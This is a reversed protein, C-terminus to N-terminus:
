YKNYLKNNNNFKVSPKGTSFESIDLKNERILDEIKQRLDPSIHLKPLNDVRKQKAEMKKEHEAVKENKIKALVNRAEFPDALYLYPKENGKEKEEKRKDDLEHWYNAHDPPLIRHMPMHSNVRYM